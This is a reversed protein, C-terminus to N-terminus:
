MWACADTWPTEGSHSGYTDRRTSNSGVSFLLDPGGAATRACTSSQSFHVRRSAASALTSLSRRPKRNGASSPRPGPMVQAVAACELWAAPASHNLIRGWPATPLAATAPAAAATTTAPVSEAYATVRSSVTGEAPAVDCDAAWSVPAGDASGDGCEAGARGGADSGFGPDGRWRAVWGAGGAGRVVAGDEVTGAGGGSRLVVGGDGVDDAVWVGGGTTVVVRGGVEVLVAGGGAGVEDVGDEGVPVGGGDLVDVGGVDVGGGDDEGVVPGGDLVDDGVLEGVSEGVQGLM